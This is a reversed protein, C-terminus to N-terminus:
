PDSYDAQYLDTYRLQRREIDWLMVDSIEMMVGTRRMRVEGDRDYWKNVILVDRPPPTYAKKVNHEPEEFYILMGEAAEFHHRTPRVPQKIRGIWWRNDRHEYSEGEHQSIRRGVGRRNQSIGYYLLKRKAPTKGFRNRGFVLYLGPGTLACAENFRYPGTWTIVITTIAM